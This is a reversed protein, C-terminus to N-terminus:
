GEDSEIERLGNGDKAAEEYYLIREKVRARRVSIIRIRRNRPTNIVAVEIGDLLGITVFREEGYDVKTSRIKITFGDYIRVADAFDIGHKEINKQRKEEDWEFATDM